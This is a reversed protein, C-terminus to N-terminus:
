IILRIKLDSLPKLGRVEKRPHALWNTQLSNEFHALAILLITQNGNMSVSVFYGIGDYLEPSRKECNIKEFSILLAKSNTFNM